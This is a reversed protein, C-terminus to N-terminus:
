FMKIINGSFDCYNFSGYCFFVLHNFVIFVKVSPSCKMLLALYTPFISFIYVKPGGAAYGPQNLLGQYNFSNQFLWIAEAFPGGIADGYPPFTLVEYKTIVLFIFIILAFIKLSVQRFYLYILSLLFLGAFVQSFPGIIIEHIRGLYFSLPAHQSPAKIIINFLDIEQNQYLHQIYRPGLYKTGLFLLSLFLLVAGATISNIRPKM